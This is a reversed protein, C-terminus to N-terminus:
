GITTTGNGAAIGIAGETEVLTGAIGVHYARATFDGVVVQEGTLLQVGGPQVVVTGSVIVRGYAAEGATISEDARSGVRGAKVAVAVYLIIRNTPSIRGSIM